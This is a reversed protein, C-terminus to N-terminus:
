GGSKDPIGVGQGLVLGDYALWVGTPLEAQTQAHGIEHSMHVLFSQDAGVQEAVQVAQSISMHTPHKRHRLGDIVLTRLGTLAQWTEPPIRSVDTCYALPLPGPDGGDVRDFRFGLIPLRGHMLRIPEVRIGHVEFCAGPEITHGILSAVFSPQVNSKADFIHKFVRQLSEHTHTDTYLDIPQEMVVNFRRVEDLGFVHDVHNHTILIADARDLGARLSQQRLDPGADILIIRDQGNSDIM